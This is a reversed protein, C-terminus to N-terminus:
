VDDPWGAVVRVTPPLVRTEPVMLEVLREMWQQPVRSGSREDLHMVDLRHVGFGDAWAGVRADQARARTLAQALLLPLMGGDFIDGHSLVRHRRSAFSTVFWVTDGDSLGIYSGDAAVLRADASMAHLTGLLPAYDAVVPCRLAWAEVRQM